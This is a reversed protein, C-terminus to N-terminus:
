AADEYNVEYNQVTITEVGVWGTSPLGVFLAKREENWIVPFGMIQEEKIKGSRYLPTLAESCIVNTVKKSVKDKFLFTARKAGKKSNKVPLFEFDAFIEKMTGVSASNQTQEDRWVLKQLVQNM